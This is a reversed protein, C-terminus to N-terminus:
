DLLEYVAPTDIHNGDRIAAVLDNLIAFDDRPRGFLILEAHHFTPM